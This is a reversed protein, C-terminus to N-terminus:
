VDGFVAQSTASRTDSGIEGRGRFVIRGQGDVYCQGGETDNLTMLVDYATGSLGEGSGITAGTGIAQYAAPWGVADLVRGALEATTDGTWSTLAAAAHAAIRSASPFVGDWIIFEDMTGGIGNSPSTMHHNGIAAYALSASFSTPCRGSIRIPTALVGDIYCRPEFSETLGVVVHHPEGDIISAASWLGQIEVGGAAADFASLRITQSADLYSQVYVRSAEGGAGAVNSTHFWYNTTGPDAGQHMFEVAFVPSTIVPSGIYVQDDSQDVFTVATDSSGAILSQAGLTPTNRYEANISGIADVATATGVAEGLRYWHAPGGSGSVDLAVEGAFPSDFPVTALWAFADSCPITVQAAALGTHDQPWEDVFGQWVFYETLGSGADYQVRVRIPRNPLVYGYWGGSAYEPDFDRSTSSVTIAATSPQFRDLEGSRGRTISIENVYDTIDEWLLTADLPNSRFAVEVAVRVESNQWLTPIQSQEPVPALLTLLM